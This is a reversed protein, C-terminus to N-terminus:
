GSNGSQCVRVTCINRYEAAIGVGEDHGEGGEVNDDARFLASDLLAFSGKLNLALIMDMAAWIRRRFLACDVRVLQLALRGTRLKGQRGFWDCALSWIAVLTIIRCLLHLLMVLLDVFPDRLLATMRFAGFLLEELGLRGVIGM